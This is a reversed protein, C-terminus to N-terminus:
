NFVMSVHLCACLAPGGPNSGKSNLLALVYLAIVYSEMHVYTSIIVVCYLCVQM